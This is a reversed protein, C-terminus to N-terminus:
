ISYLFAAKRAIRNITERIDIIPDSIEIYADRAALESSLAIAYESFAIEYALRKFTPEEISSSGKAASLQPHDINILITREERVYKARQEEEGMPRFEVNFGGRIKSRGEKKSAPKGLKEAEPANTSLVTPNLYKPEGDEINKDSNGDSGLGGTDEIIEAPLIKGFVIEDLENESPTNAQQPDFGKGSRAKVKAIKDRYEFFDDNIIKSIIEAQKALKKADESAKRLKDQKILERRVLDIKNGIFSYITHVLENSQNLRGSRSLDFPPIPSNDDNLKPVDIDGYIYQSMERGECGALTTEHWVTNSYISVGRWEEEVPSAAIKIILKVDGLISSQEKDPMFEKIDVFQPESFECEHNNVFVTANRWRALQREIYKIIGAQDLSKLHIGEIEVITGNHQNVSIDREITKVPIPDESRITKIDSRCLEVKSLKNDCVTTIRLIDAIGFAACKGTGFYGRGPRGRMRDINEGHMVFFNQLGRWDMGRGNDEISIKKKKSDLIVRVFPKTGEDIYQLSNSVYEWVVRKDTNFLAANQLLDRAVHSRVLIKDSLNILNTM